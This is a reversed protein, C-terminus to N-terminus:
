VNSAILGCDQFQKEIAIYTSKQDVKKLMGFDINIWLLFRYMTITCIFIPQVLRLRFIAKNSKGYRNEKQFEMELFQQFIIWLTKNNTDQYIRKESCFGSRSLTDFM